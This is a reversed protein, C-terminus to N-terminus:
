PDIMDRAPESLQGSFLKLTADMARGLLELGIDEGEDVAIVFVLLWVFPGLEGVFDARQDFSEALFWDFRILRVKLDPSM